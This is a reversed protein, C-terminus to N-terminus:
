KKKAAKKEEKAKAKEKAKAREGDALAAKRARDKAGKVEYRYAYKKGDDWQYAPLGFYVTENLM